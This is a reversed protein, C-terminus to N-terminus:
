RDSPPLSSNVATKGTSRSKRTTARRLASDLRRQRAIGQMRQLKELVGADLGNEHGGDDIAAAGGPQEIMSM